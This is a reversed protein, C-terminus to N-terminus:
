RYIHQGNYGKWSNELYDADENSRPRVGLMTGGNRVGEEYYKAREEPIGAGVLAGILGGTAGGAGLGALGAAIPGWVVLGLGPLVLNTGLAAIGGIIAGLSGGIV